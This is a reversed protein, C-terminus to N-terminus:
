PTTTSYGPGVSATAAPTIGHGSPPGAFTRVDVHASADVVMAYATATGARRARTLGEVHWFRPDTQRGPM